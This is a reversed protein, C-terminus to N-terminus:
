RGSWIATSAAPELLYEVIFSNALGLGIIAIAMILIPILMSLCPRSYRSAVQPVDPSTYVKELVRFFYVATLLSGIILASLFVWNGAEICGAALYWKSFFGCAPPIGVMSLAAVTFAGMTYPLKRGMGALDNVEVLGQLQLAGAIQFLSGKMVAHNMIHLMAGVLGIPNGLGIGLAIYSIQAVSSYALMRKLNRQAIAMISGAIIGIAGLIGLIPTVSLVDGLYHPSFVSILLRILIYAAVKTMLPAILASIASPAYTYADPLWLHLPFIAMKLGLGIVMLAVAGIILRSQYLGPLLSAVDSMNLSGTVSYIFGVGILYCSAGLTGMILYRLAAVPARGDGSGILAYASISAIELFVYLNFLDGTLVIGSLGALLLLMLPYTFVSREGLETQVPRLSYIICLLGIGTVLIIMFASLHDLVYEIGIPAVWGGLYYHQPGNNLVTILGWLAIAFSLGAGLSAVPYALARRWTGLLFSVLAALILFLPILVPIQEM